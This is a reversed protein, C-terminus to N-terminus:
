SSSSAVPTRAVSSSRSPASRSRALSPIACTSIMAATATPPLSSL